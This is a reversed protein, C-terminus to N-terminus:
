PPPLAPPSPPPCSRPPPAPRKICFFFGQCAREGCPRKNEEGKGGWRGRERKGVKGRRDLGGHHTIATQCRLLPACPPGRPQPCVLSLMPGCTPRGGAIGGGGREGGATVTTLVYMSRLQSGNWSYHDLKQWCFRGKSGGGLTDELGDEEEHGLADEFSHVGVFIADDLVHLHLHSFSPALPPPLPCGALQGMSWLLSPPPAVAEKIIRGM